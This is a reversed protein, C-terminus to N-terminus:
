QNPRLKAYDRRPNESSRQRRAAIARAVDPDRELVAALEYLKERMLSQVSVKRKQAEAKLTSLKKQDIRVNVQRLKPKNPM